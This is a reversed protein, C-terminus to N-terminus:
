SVRWISIRARRIGVGGDEGGSDWYDMDIDVDGSLSGKYIGSVPFYGGKLKEDCCEAITTTDDIQVRACFVSDKDVLREFEFGWEIQYDGSPLGTKSLSVKEQPTDSTTTSIGDSSEYGYETGFIVDEGSTGSTGSVGSSGSTGSTGSGSTGSTGSTGHAPGQPGEPGPDGKSGRLITVNLNLEPEISYTIGDRRAQLNIFDGASLEALFSASLIDDDNCDTRTYRFSNDLASTSDNSVIRSELTNVTAIPCLLGGDLSEGSIILFDGAVLGPGVPQSCSTHITETLVTDVYIKTASGLNGGGETGFFIFKEQPDVIQPGFVTDNNNQKVEVLATSDGTYQLTLTSVKGSCTSCSSTSNATFDYNILYLGDEKILVRDTNIDDHELVTSDNEIDTIDFDIDTWSETLDHGTTRRIQVAPLFELDSSVGCASAWTAPDVNIWINHTSDYALVQGDEPLYTTTEAEEPVDCSGTHSAIINDLDSKEQATLVRSFLLLVDPEESDMYASIYVGSFEVNIEQNLCMLSIDDRPVNFVDEINYSVVNTSDGYPHAM